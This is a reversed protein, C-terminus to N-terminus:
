AATYRRRPALLRVIGWLIMFLLVFPSFLIGFVAGVIGVILKLVVRLPTDGIHRSPSVAAHRGQVKVVPPADLAFHRIFQWYQGDTSAHFAFAQGLRAIRM